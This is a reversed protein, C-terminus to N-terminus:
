TKRKTRGSRHDSIFSPPLATMLRAKPDRSAGSQGGLGLVRREDLRRLEADALGMQYELEWRDEPVSTRVSRNASIRTSPVTIKLEPRSRGPGPLGFPPHPEVPAYPPPSSNRSSGCNNEQSSEQRPQSRTYPSSSVTYYPHLLSKNGTRRGELKRRAQERETRKKESSVSVSSAGSHTTMYSPQRYISPEFDLFSADCNPAIVITDASLRSLTPVVWPTPTLHPGEKKEPDAVSQTRFRSLKWSLPPISRGSDTKRWREGLAFTKHIERRNERIRQKRLYFWLLIALAILGLLALLVSGVVIQVPFKAHVSESDATSSPLATSSEQPEATSVPDKYYVPPPSTHAGVSGTTSTPVTGNPLFVIEFTPSEGVQTGNGFAFAQIVYQPQPSCSTPITIISVSDGEGLPSNQILVISEGTLDNHLVFTIVDPDAQQRTLDVNLTSGPQIASSESISLLLSTNLAPFSLIYLVFFILPLGAM